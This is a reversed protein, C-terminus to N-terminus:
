IVLKQDIYTIRIRDDLNRLERKIKEISEISELDIFFNMESGMDSEDLRKLNIKKCYKSIIEIVDSTEVGKKSKSVISLYLNQDSNDSKRFYKDKFIIIISIIVLFLAVVLGQGAGFGLGAAICLFLYALEEPEKIAARFRVISLAGVLGLSLALSSKVITIILMTTMSILIFNESFIKRNSVSNGYQIYLYRIILSFIGTYILNLIFSLIPISVSADTLFDEFSEFM